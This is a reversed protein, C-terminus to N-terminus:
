ESSPFLIPLISALINFVIACHISKERYKIVEYFRISYEMLSKNSKEYLESAYRSTKMDECLKIWNRGFQICIDEFSEDFSHFFNCMQKLLLSFTFFLFLKKMQRMFCYHLGEICQEIRM